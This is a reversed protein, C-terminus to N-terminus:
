RTPEKFRDRDPPQKATRWDNGTRVVNSNLSLRRSRGQASRMVAVGTVRTNHMGPRDLKTRVPAGEIALVDESGGLSICKRGVCCVFECDAKVQMGRDLRAPQRVPAAHHQQEM